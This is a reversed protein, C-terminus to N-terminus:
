GPTMQTRAHPRPGSGPCTLVNSGPGGGFLPPDIPLAIGDWLHMSVSGGRTRALLYTGAVVYEYLQIDYSWSEGPQIFVTGWPSRLDDPAYPVPRDESSDDVVSGSRVVAVVAQGNQLGSFRPLRIAAATHNTVTLVVEGTPTCAEGSWALVLEVGSPSAAALTTPPTPPSPATACGAMTALGLLGGIIRLPETM